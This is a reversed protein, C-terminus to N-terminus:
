RVRTADYLEDEILLKYVTFSRGGYEASKGFVIVDPRYSYSYNYEHFEFLMGNDLRVPKNFDAGEFEGSVNSSAVATYGVIEELDTADCSRHTAPLERASSVLPIGVAVFLYLFNRM